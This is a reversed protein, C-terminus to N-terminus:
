KKIEKYEPLLEKEVFDELTEYGTGNLSENVAEDYGFWNDVGSVELANLKAEATLLRILDNKEIM